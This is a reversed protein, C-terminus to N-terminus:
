NGNCSLWETYYYEPTQEALKISAGKKINCM